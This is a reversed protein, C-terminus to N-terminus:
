NEFVPLNAFNPNLLWLHNPKWFIINKAEFDQLTIKLNIDYKAMNALLYNEFNKTDDLSFLCM